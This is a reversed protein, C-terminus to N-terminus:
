GWVRWWPRKKEPAPDASASSAPPEPADDGHMIVPPGAVLNAIGDATIGRLAEELAMGSILAADGVVM